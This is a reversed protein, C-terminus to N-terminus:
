CGDFTVVPNNFGDHQVSYGMGSNKQLLEIAQEAPITHPGLHFVAGKSALVRAFDLTNVELTNPPQAVEHIRILGTKKNHDLQISKTFIKVQPNKSDSGSLQINLDPNRKILEIAKASPIKKGDYYFAAGKQAMKTIQEIPSEPAPPPPPPPPVNADRDNVGKIVRPAEPAPPPPVHQVATTKVKGDKSNYQVLKTKPADPVKAPSPAPPPPPPPPLLGLGGNAKSFHTKKYEADLKELFDKPTSAISIIPRLSTYDTEEWNKTIKDIDRAFTELSTPKGNLTVESLQVIIVFPKNQATNIFFSTKGKDQKKFRNHLPSMIEAFDDQTLGGKGDSSSCVSMQKAIDLRVLETVVDKCFPISAKPSINLAATTYNKAQVLPELDSIALFSNGFSIKNEDTIALDLVNLGTAVSTPDETAIYKMNTGSFGYILMALLPLMLLGKLWAARTSTRKKM